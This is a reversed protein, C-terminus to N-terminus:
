DNIEEGNAIRDMEEFSMDLLEYEYEDMGKREKIGICMHSSTARLPNCGFVLSPM